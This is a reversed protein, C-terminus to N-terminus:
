FPKPDYEIHFGWTYSVVDFETFGGSSSPSPAREIAEIIMAKTIGTARRIDVARGSYHFSNMQHDGETGSLIYLDKKEKMFLTKVKRLGESMEPHLNLYVGQEIWVKNM